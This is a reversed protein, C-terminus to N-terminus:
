KIQCTADSDGNPTIAPSTVIAAMGIQRSRHDRTETEHKANLVLNQQKTEGCKFFPYFIDEKPEYVHM